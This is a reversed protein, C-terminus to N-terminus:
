LFAEVSVKFYEALARAHDATIRREGRLIMPGLKPSAKLIGSLATATLGHETLLHKLTDAPTKKKWSVHANEWTELLAALLEFYDNQDASMADEHGAFLAAFELSSKYEAKDRIPRPLHMRCLSEYDRPLGAFATGAMRTRAATKM